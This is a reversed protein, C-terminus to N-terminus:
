CPSSVNSHFCTVSESTEVSRKMLLNHELPKVAQSKGTSVPSKGNSKMAM